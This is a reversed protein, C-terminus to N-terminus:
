YVDELIKKWFVKENGYLETLQQEMHGVKREIIQDLTNGKKDKYNLGIEKAIKLIKQECHPDGSIFSWFDKGVLHKVESMYTKVINSVAKENGYCMCFIPISNPEKEITRLLINQMDKAPQMPYPNPGSKIMLNYTKKGKKLKMTLGLLPKETSFEKAVNQLTKGFGTVMGREIRQSVLWKALDHPSELKMQHKVCALFFPNLDFDWITLNEISRIRGDLFSKFHYKIRIWTTPDITLM